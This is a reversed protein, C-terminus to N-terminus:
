QTEGMLDINEFPNPISTTGIILSAGTTQFWITHQELKPSTYPQRATSPQIEM